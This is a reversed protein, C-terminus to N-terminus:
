KYAMMSLGVNELAHEDDIAAAVQKGEEKAIDSAREQAKGLATRESEKRAAGTGVRVGTSWRRPTGGEGELYMRAQWFPSRTSLEVKVTYSRGNHMDEDEGTCRSRSIGSQSRRTFRRRSPSALGAHM